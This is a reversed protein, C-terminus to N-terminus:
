GYRVWLIISYACVIGNVVAYCPSSNIFLDVTTAFSVTISGVAVERVLRQNTFAACMNLTGMVWMCSAMLAYPNGKGLYHLAFQVSQCYIKFQDTADNNQICWHNIKEGYFMVFEVLFPISIYSVAVILFVLGMAQGKAFDMAAKDVAQYKVKDSVPVSNKSTSTKKSFDKKPVSYKLTSPNESISPCDCSPAKPPPCFSALRTKIEFKVDPLFIGAVVCFIATFGLALFFM